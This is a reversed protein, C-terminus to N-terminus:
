SSALLPAGAQQVAEQEQKIAPAEAPAEPPPAEAPPAMAPSARIAVQQQEERQESPQQQAAEPEEVKVSQAKFLPSIQSPQLPQAPPAPGLAVQVGGGQMVAFMQMGQQQGAAQVALIPSSLFQGQAAGQVLRVGPPLMMMPAPPPMAGPGASVGGAAPMGAIQVAVGGDAGPRQQQQAQQQQAQQQLQGVLGAASRAAKELQAVQAFAAAMQSAPLGAPLTFQLGQLGGPLTLQM